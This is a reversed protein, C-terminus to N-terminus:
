KGDKNCTEGEPFFYMDLIAARYMAEMQISAYDVMSIQAQSVNMLM